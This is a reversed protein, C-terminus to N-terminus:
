ETQGKRWRWARWKVTGSHIARTPTRTRPSATCATPSHYARRDGPAAMTKQHAEQLQRGASVIEVAMQVFNAM